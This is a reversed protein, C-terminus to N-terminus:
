WSLVGQMYATRARARVNDLASFVIKVATRAIDYASGEDGMMHGWGGCNAQSGDANILRCNSGTGAILM